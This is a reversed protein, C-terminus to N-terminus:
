KGAAPLTITFTTGASATSHVTMSGGHRTIISHAAALALGTGALDPAWALPDFFRGQVHPPISQGSHQVTLEIQEVTRAQAAVKIRGSPPLADIAHELLALIADRLEAFNAQVRLGTEVSVTLDVRYGERLPADHWRPRALEIASTVIDALDLVELGTHRHARAYEQLRRVAAAGDLATNLITELHERSEADQTTALLLEARGVVSALINNFRHAMSSAMESLARMKETHFLQAELARRQTLERLVLVYRGATEHEPLVVVKAELPIYRGNAARMILECLSEGTRQAEALASQLRERSEPAVAVTLPHGLLDAQRMLLVREVYPNAYAVREGPDLVFILDGAHEVIAQHVPVTALERGARPVPPRDGPGSEGRPPEVRAVQAV